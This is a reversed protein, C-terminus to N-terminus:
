YMAFIICLSLLYLSFSLTSYLHHCSTLTMMMLNNDHVMNQDISTVYASRDISVMLGHVSTRAIGPSQYVANYAELRKKEAKSQKKDNSAQRVQQTRLDEAFKLKELQIPDISDDNNNHRHHQDHHKSNNNDDDDDKKAKAKSNSLRRRSNSSRQRVLHANWSDEDEIPHKM